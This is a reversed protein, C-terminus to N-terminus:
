KKYFFKFWIGAFHFWYYRWENDNISFYLKKIEAINQRMSELHFIRGKESQDFTMIIWSFKKYITKLNTEEKMEMTKNYWM